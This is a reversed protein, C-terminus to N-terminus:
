ILFFLEIVCAASVVCSCVLFITPWEIDFFLYDFRKYKIAVGIGIVGALFCLTYLVISHTFLQVIFGIAALIEAVVGVICVAEFM